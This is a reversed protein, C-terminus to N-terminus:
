EEAFARRFSDSAPKVLYEFFTRDGTEIFTEVPMGPFIQERTIEKPLVEAIQLRAPFYPENTVPDVVRDASIFTVTGPVEPTVRNNLTSFRLNAKQGVTVLDVDAPNVRAEVILEGGVPLLVMIDEGQRVVSGPTNKNVTVVVGDAPARIVVRKLVNDASRIREQTDAVQRRVENLQSVATEAMDAGLKFKRQSAEIIASKAEAITALNGGIRGELDSRTRILLNVESKRTLGRALLRRKGKIDDNLVAIQDRAAKIQAQLGVIKENLAAVNQDVIRRDTELRERRKAFESYQEQLDNELNSVKARASLAESFEVQEAGDREAQLRESRAALAILSKELRNRTAEAETPDLTLLAQGKTVTDGEAVLIEKIIGGEFHQIRLNQGSAAVVGQAVSAGSLPASAAWLGFVGIFIALVALGVVSPWFIGTKVTKAWHEPKPPLAPAQPPIGMNPAMSNM